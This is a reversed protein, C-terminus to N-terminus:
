YPSPADPNNLIPDKPKEIGVEANSDKLYQTTITRNSEEETASINWLGESRGGFYRYDYVSKNFAPLLLRKTRNDAPNDPSFWKFIIHRDHSRTVDMYKCKIKKIGEQTTTCHLEAAELGMFLLAPLIFWRLFM